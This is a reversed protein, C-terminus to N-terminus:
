FEYELNVNWFWATDTGHVPGIDSTVGTRDRRDFYRQEEKSLPVGKIDDFHGGPIFLGGVFGLKVDYPLKTDVYLNLEIGLHSRATFEDSYVGSSYNFVRSPHTQWYSLMNPNFQWTHGCVDPKIWLASGVFALDTFQSVQSPFASLTAPVAASAIRPIKGTGSMLFASRVRKGSYTEQLSIFGKYDGDVTSDGLDDLDKNPNDDGSAYGVALSAKFQPIFAYTADAVFMYGRYVNCYPDRFRDIGEYLPTLSTATTPIQKAVLTGDAAVYSNNEQTPTVAYIRTQYSPIYPANGSLQKAGANLYIKSNVVSVVGDTTSNQHIITNRDIGKVHQAGTNLAMDLGCEFCPATAEFALGVTTLRSYADGIFEVRQEDDHNHMVYPEIKISSDKALHPEIFCHAALVYSMVGYGRAQDFRHGYERGRIKANTNDFSDSKNDLIAAYLDYKILSSVRGGIRVGPAYQQVADYANYGIYEPATAYANGLSIGRGLQFPFLGLTVSQYNCLDIGFVPNFAYEMWLERIIPVNVPIGHRHIGVVCELDKITAPSTKANSEPAGWTGRNRIGTKIKIIDQAFSAKGYGYLMELDWTHRGPILFQDQDNNSNLLRVNWGGLSEIKLRNKLNFTHEGSEWIFTGKATISQVVISLVCLGIGLGLHRLQM